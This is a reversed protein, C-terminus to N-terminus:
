YILNYLITIVVVIFLVFTLSGDDDNYESDNKRM